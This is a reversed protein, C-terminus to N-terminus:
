RCDQIHTSHTILLSSLPPAEIIKYVWIVSLVDAGFSCETDVESVM